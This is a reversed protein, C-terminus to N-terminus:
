LLGYRRLEADRDEELGKLGREIVRVLSQAGTLPEILELWTTRDNYARDIFNLMEGIAEIAATVDARSGSSLPQANSQGLALALDKHAVYRNRWDRAFATRELAVNALRKIGPQLESKVFPELALVTLNARTGRGPSSAPDTLRALCLLIMEWMLKQLLFFFSGTSKNLIQIREPGEAFLARFEQWILLLGTLEQWLEAFVAGLQPGLEAEYQTRVPDNPDRAMSSMTSPTRQPPHESVGVVAFM